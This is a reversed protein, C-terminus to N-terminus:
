AAKEVREVYAGTETNIRIIDDTNIFLPVQIIVGTELTAAKTGSQARDGQVGPPAETVKFDMKIPLRFNLLRDGFFVATVETNPKLWQTTEGIIEEKIPFRNKPNQPDIFIYEGRHAYLFVLPRKEIDAEEFSDSPQFSLEIIKGTALNRIKGQVVAKRQQMRSFNSELVEYPDGDKIFLAGKKLDTYSLMVTSLYEKTENNYLIIISFAIERPRPSDITSHTKKLIRM